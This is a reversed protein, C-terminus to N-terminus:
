RSNFDSILFSPNTGYLKIMVLSNWIDLKLNNTHSVVGYASSGM